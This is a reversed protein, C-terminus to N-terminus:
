SNPDIGVSYLICNLINWTLSIGAIIAAAEAAALVAAVTGATVASVAVLIAFLAVSVWFWGWWKSAICGTFKNWIDSFATHTPSINEVTTKNRAAQTLRNVAEGFTKHLVQPDFLHNPIDPHHHQMAKRLDETTSMMTLGLGEVTDDAPTNGQSRVRHALAQWTLPTIKGTKTSANMMINGTFPKMNAIYQDVFEGPFYEKLLNHFSLEDIYVKQSQVDLRGLSDMSRFLKVLGAKVQPSIHGPPLGALINELPQNNGSLDTGQNNM